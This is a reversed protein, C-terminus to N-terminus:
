SHERVTLLILREWKVQPTDRRLFVPSRNKKLKASGGTPPMQGEENM